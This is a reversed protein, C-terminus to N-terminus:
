ENEPELFFGENLFTTPALIGYFTIEDVCSAVKQGLNIGREHLVGVKATMCQRCVTKSFDLCNPRVSTKEATPPGRRLTLSLGLPAGIPASLIGSPPLQKPFSKRHTPSVVPPNNKDLTSSNFACQWIYMYTGIFMHMYACICMHIYIYIHM